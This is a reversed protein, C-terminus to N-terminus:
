NLPIAAVLYLPASKSAVVFRCKTSTSTSTSSHTTSHSNCSTIRSPPITIIAIIGHQLQVRTSNPCTTTTPTQFPHHSTLPHDCPTVYPITRGPRHATERRVPMSSADPRPPALKPIILPAM